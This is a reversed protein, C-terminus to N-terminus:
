SGNVCLAWAEASVTDGDPAPNSNTFGVIWEHATRGPGSGTVQLGFGSTGGGNLAVKGTPCAVFLAASKGPALSYSQLVREYGSVGAAGPAGPDGKAGTDGKPGPVGQPGQAGPNGQLGQAGPDGKAGPQGQPGTQSWIITTDHGACRPTGNATVNYLAHGLTTVCATYSTEVPPTTTAYALGGGLLATAGLSGAALIAAKKTLRRRAPSGQKTGTSGLIQNLSM